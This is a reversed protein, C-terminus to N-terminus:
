HVMELCTECDEVAVIRLPWSCRNREWVLGAEADKLTNYKRWIAEESNFTILIYYM